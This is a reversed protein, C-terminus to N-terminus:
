SQATASSFLCFFQNNIIIIFSIMILVAIKLPKKGISESLELVSKNGTLKFFCFSLRLFVYALLSMFIAQIWAANGCTKFLFRPFSFTMKTILLNSMVMTLQRRNFKIKTNMFKGKLVVCFPSM